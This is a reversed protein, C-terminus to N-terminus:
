YARGFGGVWARALSGWRRRIMYTCVCAYVCVYVSTCVCARVWGNAVVLANFGFSAGLGFIFKQLFAPALGAAMAGRTMGGGGGGHSEIEWVGAAVGVKSGPSGHGGDGGAGGGVPSAGAATVYAASGRGNNTINTTTAGRLPSDQPSQPLLKM